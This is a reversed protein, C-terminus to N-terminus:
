ELADDPLSEESDEWEDDADTQVGPPHEQVGLVGDGDNDGDTPPEFLRVRFSEVLRKYWTKDSAYPGDESFEPQLKKLWNKGSTEMEDMEEVGDAKFGTVAAKLGGNEKAMAAFEDATMTKVVGGQEETLIKLAHAQVSLFPAMRFQNNGWDLLVWVTDFAPKPPEDIKEARSLPIAPAYPNPLESTELAQIQGAPNTPIAPAHLSPVSAFAQQTAVIAQGASMDGASILAQGAAYLPHIQGASSLAPAEASAFPQPQGATASTDPLNLRRFWRGKVEYPTRALGECPNFIAKERNLLMLKRAEESKIIIIPKGTKVCFERAYIPSFLICRLWAGNIVLEADPGGQNARFDARSQTYINFFEERCMPCRLVRNRVVDLEQNIWDMLCTAPWSNRCSNSTGVHTLIQVNSAVPGRCWICTDHERPGRGRGQEWGSQYLALLRVLNNRDNLDVDPHITEPDPEMFRAMSTKGDNDNWSTSAPPSGSSVSDKDAQAETKTQAETSPSLTKTTKTDSVPSTPPSKGEAVVDSDAM